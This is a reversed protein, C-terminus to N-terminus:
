PLASLAILALLAALIPFVWNQWDDRSKLPFARRPLDRRRAGSEHEAHPSSDNRYSM